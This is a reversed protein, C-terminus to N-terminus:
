WELRREIFDKWLNKGAEEKIVLHNGFLDLQTKNKKLMELSRIKERYM